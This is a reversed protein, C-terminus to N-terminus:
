RKWDNWREYVWFSLAWLTIEGMQCFHHATAIALSEALPIEFQTLAFALSAEFCNSSNIPCAPLSALM